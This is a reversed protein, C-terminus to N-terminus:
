KLQNLIANPNIGKKSALEFFLDKPSKGSEKVMNLVRQVNPNSVALNMLLQQPNASTKYAQAYDVNGNNSMIEQYLKNM